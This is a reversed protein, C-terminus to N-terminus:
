NGGSTSSTLKVSKNVQASISFTVVTGSSVDESVSDLQVGSLVASSSVSWDTLVAIQEAVSKYSDATGALTLKGASSVAVDTVTVKDSVEAYLATLFTSMEYRNTTATQLADVATKFATAKKEVASYTSGNIQSVITDKESQKNALAKSVSSNLLWFGVTCVISVIAALWLLSPSLNKHKNADFQMLEDNASSMTKSPAPPSAPTPTSTSTSSSSQTSGFNNDPEM